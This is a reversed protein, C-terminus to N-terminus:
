QKQAFLRRRKALAKELSRLLELVPENVHAPIRQGRRSNRPQGTRSLDYARTRETLRTRVEEFRTENSTISSRFPCRPAFVYAILGPKALTM